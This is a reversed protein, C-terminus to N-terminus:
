RAHTDLGDAAIRNSNQSFKAAGNPTMAGMDIPCEKRKPRGQRPSKGNTLPIPDFLRV